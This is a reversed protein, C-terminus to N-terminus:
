PLLGEQELFRHLMKRMEQVGPRMEVKLREHASAIPPTQATIDLHLAQRSGDRLTQGPLTPIPYGGLWLLQLATHLLHWSPHAKPTTSLMPGSITGNRKVPQSRWHACTHEMRLIALLNEATAVLDAEEQPSPIPQFPLFSPVLKGTRAGGTWEAPWPSVQELIKSFVHPKPPTGGLIRFPSPFVAKAANAVLFTHDQFLLASGGQPLVTTALDPPQAASAFVRGEVRPADGLWAVAQGDDAVHVGLAALWPTHESPLHVLGASNWGAPLLM